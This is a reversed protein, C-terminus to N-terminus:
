LSYRGTWRLGAKIAEGQQREREAIVNLRLHPWAQAHFDKETKGSHNALWERM